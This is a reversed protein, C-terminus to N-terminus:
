IFEERLQTKLKERARDMRVRVNVFTLGTVAAIERQSLGSFYFLTIIERDLESLEAIARYLQRYGEDRIYLDAVSFDSELDDSLETQRGQDRFWDAVLNKSVKYLWAVSFTGRDELGVMARLFTEQAIDEAAAQNKVCSLAFLFIRRYNDNYFSELLNGDTKRVEM